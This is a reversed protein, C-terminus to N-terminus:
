LRIEDWSKAECPQGWHFLMKKSAPMLIASINTSFNEHHRCITNECPINKEGHDALIKKLIEIDIKDYKDLLENLRKTRIINTEQINKGRMKSPAKEGYVADFPILREKMQPNQYLNANVIVSNKLEVIGTGFPSLEVAVADGRSDVVSIIGSSPNPKKRLINMADRTTECIQLIDQIKATLLSSKQPQEDSYGYNYTIALGAENFGTHSGALPAMTFEISSYGWRTFSKRLINFNKFDDVFDFNKALMPEDSRPPVVAISSCGMIQRAADAGAVEIYHILALKWLPVDAGDAIGTFREKFDSFNEFTSSLFKKTFIGAGFLFANMPLYKPKINRFPKYNYVTEWGWLIDESLEKGQALGMEYASGYLEIIRKDKM